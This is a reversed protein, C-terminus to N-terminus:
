AGNRKLDADLLRALEVREAANLQLAANDVDDPHPSIGADHVDEWALDDAAARVVAWAQDSDLDDAPDADVASPAASMQTPAAPAPAHVTTRWVATSALLIMATAIAAWRAFPSLSGRRVPAPAPEDRLADIVRSSFHNWFLPSPEPMDDADVALLTQRLTEAEARCRECVGVHRIRDAALAAPSEILDVFQDRSLHKM